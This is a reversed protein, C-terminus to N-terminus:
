QVTLVTATQMGWMEHWSPHVASWSPGGIYPCCHPRKPLHIEVGGYGLHGLRWLSSLQSIRCTCHLRGSVAVISFFLFIIVEVKKQFFYRVRQSLQFINVSSSSHPPAPEPRRPRNNTRKYLPSPYYLDSICGCM